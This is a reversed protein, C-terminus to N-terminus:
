GAAHMNQGLATVSKEVLEPTGGVNVLYLAHLFTSKVGAEEVAERFALIQEEALPKFAWARPSSAFIQITEAGIEQAREVAKSIGGATSVHAGLDM